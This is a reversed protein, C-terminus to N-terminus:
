HTITHSFLSVFVQTGECYDETEVVNKIFILCNVLFIEKEQTINDLTMASQKLHNYCFEVSQPLLPTFQLPREKQAQTLLKGFLKVFKHLYSTLPNM